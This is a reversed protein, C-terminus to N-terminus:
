RVQLTGIQVNNVRNEAVDGLEAIVRWTGSQSYRPLTLSVTYRGSLADGSTRTACENQVDQDGPGKLNIFVCAVGSLDDTVTLSVTVVQEDLSTDVSTPISVSSYSPATSDCNPAVTDEADFTCLNAGLGGDLSDPNRGGNLEDDGSSGSLTDRGDGGLLFDDGDNGELTDNGRGGIVTDDGKGGSVVDNGPGADILDNGGAGTIKDNGGLGCIVDRKSTGKLTNSKSNGWITCKVGTSTKPVAAIAPSAGYVLFLTTAIGVAIRALNAKM